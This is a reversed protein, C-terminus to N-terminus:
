PTDKDARITRAIHRDLPIRIFPAVLLSLSVGTLIHIVPNEIFYDAVTICTFTVLFLALLRIVMGRAEPTM